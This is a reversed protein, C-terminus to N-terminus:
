FVRVTGVYGHAKVVGAYGSINYQSTGLYAILPVDTAEFQATYTVVSTVIITRPNDTVGDSWQKFKYGVNPTAILSVTSGYEYTGGGVVTGNGDTNVTVAYTLKEFQATYSAAGSVTITRQSDTNGDSWQKFKYGTDPTATLTISAGYEYTGGGSATGGTSSNVTVIYTNPAFVAEYTKTTTHASISNQSITISRSAATSGDSWKVFHYHANPSATITKTFDKIEVEWSGSGSVTGWATNNSQVKITFSPKNFEYIIYFKQLTWKRAITASAWYLFYPYSGTYRGANAGETHVYSLLSAHKTVLSNGVCAGFDGIKPGNPSGGGGTRNSFAFYLDGKAALSSKIAIFLDAAVIKSYKPISNNQILDTSLTKYNVTAYGSTESGSFLTTTASFPM